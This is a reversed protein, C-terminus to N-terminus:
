CYERVHVDREAPRCLQWYVTLLANKMGVKALWGHISTNAKLSVQICGSFVAVGAAREAGKMSKTSTDPPVSHQLM